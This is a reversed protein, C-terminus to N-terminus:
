ATSDVPEDDGYVVRLTMEGHQENENRQTAKGLEWEIIETAVSQRVREDDSDLGAVKVSMAKALNRRRIHQATVLGDHAMLRVAEAIADKQEKPWNKVTNPSIHLVQAADKDTTTEARVVVFRIQDTTLRSLLTELADSDTPEPRDSTHNQGSQDTM